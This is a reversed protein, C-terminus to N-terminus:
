DPVATWYIRDTSCGSDTVTFWGKAIRGHHLLRGAITVHDGAYDESVGSASFSHPTAKTVRHGSNKDLEFVGDLVEPCNPYAWSVGNFNQVQAHDFCHPGTPCAKGRLDFGMLVPLGKTQGPKLNTGEGTYSVTNAYASATCALLLALAGVLGLAKTCTRLTGIAM